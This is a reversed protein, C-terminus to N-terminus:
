QNTIHASLGPAYIGIGDEFGFAYYTISRRSGTALAQPPTQAVPYLKGTLSHVIRIRISSRTTFTNVSIFGTNGKYPINRALTDRVVDTASSSDIRLLSLNSGVMANILRINLFSDKSAIFQDEVFFATRNKGTDALTLSYFKGIETNLKTNFLVVSDNQTGSNVLVLKLTSNAPIAAYDPFGVTSPFIGGNGLTTNGNLKVENAKIVVSPTGASYLAIRVFAKDTPIITETTSLPAKDCSIVATFLCFIIFLIINNMKM